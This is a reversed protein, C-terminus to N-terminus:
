SAVDRRAVVILSVIFLVLALGLFVVYSWSDIENYVLAKSTNFYYFFSAYKLDSLSEKISALINVVYMIALISGSLFFVKGKDSFVSSFFMAISYVALGFLFALVAITVFNEAKYSIDYAECLPIATFISFVIFVALMLIGAFYRSLFLKIRSLPQSLLLEITGKEVEGAFASGAYGVLMVIVLIPWMFSFQETSLFGEITVFNKIDFNFAKMLSEPYSKLLQEMSASQEKFSPFIGIYMWLIAIGALSYILILIRRDKLARTFITWM